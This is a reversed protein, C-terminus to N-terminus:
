DPETMLRLQGRELVHLLFSAASASAIKGVIRKTLTFVISCCLMMISSPNPLDQHAPAPLKGV